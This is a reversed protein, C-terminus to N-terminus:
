MTKSGPRAYGHLSNFLIRGIELDYSCVNIGHTQADELYRSAFVDKVWGFLSMARV